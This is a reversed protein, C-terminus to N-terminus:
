TLKEKDTTPLNRPSALGRIMLKQHKRSRMHRSLNITTIMCNCECRVVELNKMRKEKSNLSM